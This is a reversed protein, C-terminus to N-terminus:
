YTHLLPKEDLSSSASIGFSSITSTSTADWPAGMVEKRDYEIERQVILNESKQIRELVMTVEKMTPREKGNLRLCSRALSAVMLVDEEKGQKVVQPDLIDFLCNSEMAMLFYTALSRGQEESRTFSIPKQGTLLEVLVVGFSYVDSKDTFQSSQFYEPDLYGFTGQVLTTVHTQDVSISRSTGFDAVKARYKEDLLINASKIDRHFIAISAASHLYFLAGAVETAIQFLTGNPIFEYVLLPLETELCCGLLKVVNRHNIQSLLVVENIFQRLNGEDIVKSKKVAVIKGDALMGKYVIGQGGQGLTRNANYHDTAKDLEKSPFMKIKEVNVEGSSLQEQLLLGGNRKFYKKKLKECRKRKFVKYVWWLGIFLFLIAGFGVGVGSIVTIIGIGICRTKGDGHKGLPCRCKYDGITNTCTGEQCPNKGECENIDQCGEKLYPNGEFGKNCSCRYGQGSEPYTCDANAGCAYASTNAKAQECTKNEVVWEIVVDTGYKPTRSLPRDSIKLSRKDALFAFGCPNFDSVSSNYYASTVVYCLSKLGKPISTQCCGSGSCPNEDSMEVYKTCFSLCGAEYTFENSTVRASTNCGTATFINRTDSLMFPGSGLNISQKFSKTEIGTKNYCSFAPYIRLTVTGELEINSISQSSADTTMDAVYLEPHGEDNSTCNLFFNDNMACSPELIGFPYPVSVNGCKEQCGPKAASRATSAGVPWLSLVVMPLFVWM